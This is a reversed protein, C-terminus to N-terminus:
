RPAAGVGSPRRGRVPHLRGRPEPDSRGDRVVRHREDGGAQLHARARLRLLERGLNKRGGGRASHLVRQQVELARGARVAPRRQRLDPLLRAPEQVERSEPLVRAQLLGRAGFHAHAAQVLQAIAVSTFMKNMSGLNFKTDVKNPAGFVKEAMGYAKNFIVSDGKAVLVVGSFRDERAAREVHREIEKMAEPGGMKERSWANAKEAEPDPVVRLGFGELRDPQAKDARVLMRVHINGRRTRTLFRIENPSSDIVSRLDFGGSQAFLKQLESLHEDLPRQKLSSDSYGAKIFSTQREKDGSNVAELFSRALKGAPTGPFEAGDAPQQARAVPLALMSSVVLAMVVGM